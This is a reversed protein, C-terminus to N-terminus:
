FLFGLLDAIPSYKAKASAQDSDSLGMTAWRRERLPEWAWPTGWPRAGPRPRRPAPGPKRKLGTVGERHSPRPPFPPPDRGVGPHMLFFGPGSLVKMRLCQPAGAGGGM